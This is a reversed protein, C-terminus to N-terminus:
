FKLKLYIIYMIYVYMINYVNVQVYFLLTLKYIVLVYTFINELKLIYQSLWNILIIMSLYM